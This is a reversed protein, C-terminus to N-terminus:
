RFSTSNSFTANESGSNAIDIDHLGVMTRIKPAMIPLIKFAGNCAVDIEDETANSFSALKDLIWHPLNAEGRIANKLFSRCLSPDM